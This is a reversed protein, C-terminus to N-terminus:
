RIPGVLEILREPRRRYSDWATSGGAIALLTDWLAQNVPAAVGAQEAARAIAGYLFAGESRPNGRALELQLSPPKGGRGGAVLRRLLPDLLAAPAWRMALALLAAPNRPLNVPAIGIRDMVALAELFARRELAVLRRDAYIQAVPMDLIAATANGLINLLAKSWKLARYDAFERVEFGAGRLAAAAQGAAAHSEASMPAVGIGGRKAVSISGPAEIEVSATIAGSVVRGAGFRGALIEENGIGNQLTLISRPRLADLAALADATDYSKVCLIALDPPQDHPELAGADTLTALGEVVQRAGDQLISLRDRDIAQATRPRALLATRQGSQALRGAVLLGIAGAGVVVITM